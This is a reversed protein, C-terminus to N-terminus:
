FIQGCCTNDSDASVDNSLKQNSRIDDNYNETYKSIILANKKGTVEVLVPEKVEPFWDTNRLDVAARKIEAVSGDKNVYRISCLNNDEDTKTVVAITSIRDNSARVAEGVTGQKLPEALQGM